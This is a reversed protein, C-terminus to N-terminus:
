PSETTMEDAAVTLVGSGQSVLEGEADLVSVTVIYVGAPLNSGPTLIWRSGFVRLFGDGQVFDMNDVAVALTQGSELTTTGTLALDESEAVTIPDVTPGSM